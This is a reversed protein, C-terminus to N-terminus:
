GRVSTTFKSFGAEEVALNYQGVKVNLFDYGGKEDTTAQAQIGTDMSTLTVTAKTVAGGSPDSVIGLVESTEFQGFLLSAFLFFECVSVVLQKKM